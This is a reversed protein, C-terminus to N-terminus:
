VDNIVAVRRWESLPSVSVFFFSFSFFFFVSECGPHNYLPMNRRQVRWLGVRNENRGFLIKEEMSIRAYSSKRCIHFYIGNEEVLIKRNWLPISVMLRIVIIFLRTMGKSSRELRLILESNALRGISFDARVSLKKKIKWKENKMTYRPCLKSRALPRAIVVPLPPAARYSRGSKRECPAHCPARLIPLFDVGVLGHRWDGGYRFWDVLGHGFEGKESRSAWNGAGSKEIREGKWGGIEWSVIGRIIQVFGRVIM